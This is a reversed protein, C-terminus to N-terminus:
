EGAGQMMGMIGATMMAGAAVCCIGILIVWVLPAMNMVSAGDAAMCVLSGEAM